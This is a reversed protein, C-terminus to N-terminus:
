DELMRTWLSSLAQPLIHASFTPAATFSLPPIISPSVDVEVLPHKSTRGLCYMPVVNTGGTAFTTCRYLITDLSPTNFDLPGSMNRRCRSNLNCKNKMQRVKQRGGLNTIYSFAPTFKTLGPGRGLGEVVSSLSRLLNTVTFTLCQEIVLSGRLTVTSSSSCSVPKFNSTRRESILHYKQCRGHLDVPTSHWLFKLTNGSTWTPRRTTAPTERKTGCSKDSM